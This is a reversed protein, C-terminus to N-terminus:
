LMLLFMLLAVILTINVSVVMSSIFVVLVSLYVRGSLRNPIVIIFRVLVLRRYGILILLSKVVSLTFLLLFGTVM